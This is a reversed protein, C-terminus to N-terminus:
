IACDRLAPELVVLLASLERPGLGNKSVDLDTLRCAGQQTKCAELLGETLFDAQQVIKIIQQTSSLTQNFINAVDDGDENTSM